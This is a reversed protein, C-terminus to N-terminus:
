DNGTMKILKSFVATIAKEVYKKVGNACAIKPILLTVPVATGEQKQPQADYILGAFM